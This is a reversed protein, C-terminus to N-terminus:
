LLTMIMCKGPPGAIFMSSKVAMGQRGCIATRLFDLVNSREDDRCLLTAGEQVDQAAEALSLTKIASHFAEQWSMEPQDATPVSGEHGELRKLALQATRDGKRGFFGSQM